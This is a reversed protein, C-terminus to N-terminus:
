AASGRKTRKPKPPPEVIEGEVVAEHPQAAVLMPMRGTAYAVSIADAVVELVVKGDPLAIKALFEADLAAGGAAILELKARVVLVLLRWRERCAQEWRQQATKAHKGYSAEFASAKPLPLRLRVQRLKEAMGITFYILAIGEADLSASGVNYGGHRRIVAELDAKSKEVPVTTGEAYSM